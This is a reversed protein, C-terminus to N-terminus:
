NKSFAIAKRFITMFVTDLLYKNFRKKATHIIRTFDIPSVPDPQKVTIMAVQPKLSFMENCFCIKLEPDHM